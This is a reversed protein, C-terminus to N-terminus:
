SQFYRDILTPDDVKNLTGTLAFWGRENEDGIWCKRGDADMRTVRYVASDNYREDLQVYDGNAIETM